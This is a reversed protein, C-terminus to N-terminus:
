VAVKLQTLGTTDRTWDYQLIGQDVIDRSPILLYRLNKTHNPSTLQAEPGIVSCSEKIM